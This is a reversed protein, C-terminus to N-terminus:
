SAKSKKEATVEKAWSVLYFMAVGLGVFIGVYLLAMLGLQTLKTFAARVGSILLDLAGAVSRLGEGTGSIWGTLAQFMLPTEVQFISFGIILVLLAVGISVMVGVLTKKEKKDEKKEDKKGGKDDHGHDDAPPKAPPPSM